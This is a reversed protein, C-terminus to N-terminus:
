GNCTAQMLATWETVKDQIDVDANRRILLDVIEIHGKMSAYILATAGDGDTLPLCCIFLDHLICYFVTFYLVICYLVNCHLIICYLRIRFFVICIGHLAM